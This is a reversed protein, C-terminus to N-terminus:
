FNIKFTKEAIKIESDADAGKKQLESLVGTREMIDKLRYVSFKNAFDTRKAFREIKRGKVVFVDGERTVSFVDRVVDEITFTKHEEKKVPPVFNKNEREIVGWVAAIM